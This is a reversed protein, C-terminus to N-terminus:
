FRALRDTESLTVWFNLGDSIAGFPGTADGTPLNGIPTLDSANWLSVSNGNLNTVLIRQGDFAAERPVNLGNGSLTKLVSGDSVRVVTLDSQSSSPIWLNAGDFVPGLPVPSIPVTQVVAGNSDLRYLEGGFSALWMSTGDFVLDGKLDHQDDVVTQVSWPPTPGPTIIALSVAQALGGQNTVWVRSGDFAISTPAIGTEAVAALVSGAQAPDISYLIGTGLGGGLVLVRGMAVLVARTGVGGTWTDLLKGDSARVRSVTGGGNAVWVDAGDAALGFPQDGVDTVGLGIDFHPLTTWWQGLAARRSSRMIEQNVGKSVFVASQGRTVPNDPSYTTPSTGATIGLYYMELVYPCLAPSVDSFPGCLDEVRAVAGGTLLAALALTVTGLRRVVTARMTEEARM